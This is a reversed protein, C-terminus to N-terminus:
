HSKGKKETLPLQLFLVSLFRQRVQGHLQKRYVTRYLVKFLQTADAATPPWRPPLLGRRHGRPKQEAMNWLLHGTDQTRCHKFRAVGDKRAQSPFTFFFTFYFVTLFTCFDRVDVGAVWWVDDDLVDRGSFSYIRVDDSMRGGSDSFISEWNRFLEEGQYFLFCHPAVNLCLDPQKAVKVQPRLNTVM